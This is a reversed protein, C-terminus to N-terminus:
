VVRINSTIKKFSNRTDFINKMNKSLFDYDFIDHNTGILCLDFSKLFKKNNLQNLKVFNVKKLANLSLNSILPDCVYIKNNVRKVLSKYIKVM